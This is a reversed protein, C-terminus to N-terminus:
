VWFLGKLIRSSEKFVRGDGTVMQLAGSVGHFRGPVGLIGNVCGQHVGSVEQFGM